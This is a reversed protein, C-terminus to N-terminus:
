ETEAERRRKTQDEIEVEERRVDEEVVQEDEVVDKRIRIEEKVIPRKEVVVEEEVVPIEVEDEGIQADSAQRGEEVPVREVHVEEHRKPVRLQERETRVHKRIRVEGAERERTGARLEEESRQVRLEEENSSGETGPAIPEAREDDRKRLIEREQEHAPRGRAERNQNSSHSRKKTEEIVQRFYERPGEASTEERELRGENERPKPVKNVEELSSGNGRARRRRYLLLSIAGVLALAGVGIGVARSYPTKGRGPNVKGVRGRMSEDGERAAIYM